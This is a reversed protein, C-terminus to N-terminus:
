ESLKGQHWLSEEGLSQPVPMGARGLSEVSTGPCWGRPELLTETAVHGRAFSELGALRTQVAPHPDSAPRGCLSSHLEREPPSHTPGATNVADKLPAALAGRM